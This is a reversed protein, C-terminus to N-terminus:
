TSWRRQTRYLPPLDAQGAALLEEALPSIPHIRAFGLHLGACLSKSLKESETALLLYLGEEILVVIKRGQQDFGSGRDSPQEPFFCGHHQFNEMIRLRFLILGLQESKDLRVKRHFLRPPQAGLEILFPPQLIGRAGIAPQVDVHFEPMNSHDLNKAKASSSPARAM